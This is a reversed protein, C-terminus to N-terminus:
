KVAERSEVLIVRLSSAVRELADARAEKAEASQGLAVDRYANSRLSRASADCTVALDTILERLRHIKGKSM